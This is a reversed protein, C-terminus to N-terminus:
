PRYTEGTQISAKEVLENEEVNKETTEKKNRNM